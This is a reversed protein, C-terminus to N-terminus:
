LYSLVTCAISLGFVKSSKEHIQEISYLLFYDTCKNTIYFELAKKDFLRLDNLLKIQIAMIGLFAINQM